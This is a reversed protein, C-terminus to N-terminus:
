VFQWSHNLFTLFIVEQREIALAVVRPFKFYFSRGTQTSSVQREMILIKKILVKLFSVIMVDCGTRRALAKSLSSVGKDRPLPLSVSSSPLSSFTYLCQCTGIKMRWFLGMIKLVVGATTLLIITVLDCRKM